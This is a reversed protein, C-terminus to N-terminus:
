EAEDQDDRASWYTDERYVEYADQIDDPDDPDFVYGSATLFDALEQLENTM